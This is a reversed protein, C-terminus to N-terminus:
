VHSPCACAGLHKQTMPIACFRAFVLDSNSFPARQNLLNRSHVSSDRATTEQTGGASGAQESSTTVLTGECHGVLGGSLGLPGVGGVDNDAASAAGAQVSGITGELQTGGDDDELLGAEGAARQLEGLTGELGHAVVLEGKVITRVRDGLVVGDLEHLLAPEGHGVAVAVLVEDLGEDGLRAFGKLPDLAGEAAGDTAGSADTGNGEHRLLGDGVTDHVQDVRGVGLAGIAMASLDPHVVSGLGNLVLTALNDQVGFDNLEQGVLVTDDVADLAEVAGAVLGLLADDAASTADVVVLDHGLVHVRMVVPHHLVVVERHDVGVRALADKGAHSQAGLGAEM